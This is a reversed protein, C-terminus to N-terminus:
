FHIVQVSPAAVAGRVPVDLGLTMTEWKLLLPVPTERDCFSLTPPQHRLWLCRHNIISQPLSVASPAGVPFPLFHRYPHLFPHLGGDKYSRCLLEPWREQWVAATLPQTSCWPRMLLPWTTRRIRKCEPSCLWEGTRVAPGWM